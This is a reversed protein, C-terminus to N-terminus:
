FSRDLILMVVLGLLVGATAQKEYGRSHSEPIIEHSIVYVMAGAAFSLAWPLLSSVQTVFGYGLASCLPEVMGTLFAILISRSRSYGNSLLALGVILGEPINQLSIGTAISLALKPDYSGAGVGVAFGEPLNHFTIAFILLWTKSLKVNVIVDDSKTIHTHPLIQHLGHVAFGGLLLAIAASMAGIAQTNQSSFQELSPILLSFFSAALMVGASFGMLFDTIKDSVRNFFVLPLAGAGTALAATMSLVFATQVHSLNELM